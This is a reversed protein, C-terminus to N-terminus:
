ADLKLGYYKSEWELFAPNMAGDVVSEPMDPVMRSFICNFGPEITSKLMHDFTMSEDVRMDCHFSGPENPNENFATIRIFKYNM